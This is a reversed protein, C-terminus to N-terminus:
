DINLDIFPSITFNQCFFLGYWSPYQHATHSDCCRTNVENM